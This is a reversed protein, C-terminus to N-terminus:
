SGPKEVKKGAPSLVYWEAGFQNLGEGKTDGPKTDPTYFYVPHGGYTVQMAGDRRRTTGGKAADAGSGAAPRSSTTFPQWVMACAGYCASRTGSDKEFLYLTRGAGDVLTKGLGTQRIVVSAGSASAPPATRQTSPTSSVTGSSGGGCGAVLAATLALTGAAFARYPHTKM